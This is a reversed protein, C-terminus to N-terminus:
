REIGLLDLGMVENLFANSAIIGMVTGIQRPTFIFNAHNDNYETVNAM